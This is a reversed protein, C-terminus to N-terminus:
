KYLERLIKDITKDQETFTIGETNVLWDKLAENEHTDIYYGIIEEANASEEFIETAIYGVDATGGNKKIDNRAEELCKNWKKNYVEQYYSKCKM